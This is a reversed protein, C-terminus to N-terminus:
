AANPAERRLAAAATRVIDALGSLGPEFGLIARAKSIDATLSPPDGPRRPRVVHPVHRGVVQEIIALVERVSSGVGAGLNLHLNSGGALLHRMALVHARALDSVHIYDRVCTGDATPYDDGFV